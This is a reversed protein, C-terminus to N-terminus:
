GSVWGSVQAVVLPDSEVVVSLWHPQAAAQTSTMVESAELVADAAAGAANDCM